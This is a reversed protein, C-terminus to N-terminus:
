EIKSYYCNVIRTKLGTLLLVVDARQCPCWQKAMCTYCKEKDCNECSGDNTLRYKCQKGDEM